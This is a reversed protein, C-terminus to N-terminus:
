FNKVHGPEQEVTSM